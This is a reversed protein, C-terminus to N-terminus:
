SATRRKPSRLADRVIAYAVVGGLFLLPLALLAPVIAWGPWLAAGVAVSNHPERPNFRVTLSSGVPHTDVLPCGGEGGEYNLGNIQFRYRFSCGRSTLQSSKTVVASAIIGTSLVEVRREHEIMAARGILVLPISIILALLALAGFGKVLQRIPGLRMM